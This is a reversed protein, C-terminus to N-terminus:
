LWADASYMPSASDGSSRASRCAALASTQPASSRPCRVSGHHPPPARAQARPSESCSEPDGVIRRDHQERPLSISFFCGSNNISANARARASCGHQSSTAPSPGCRAAASVSTARSPIGFTSNAPNRSSLASGAAYTPPPHRRAAMSAARSRPGPPSRPSSSRAASQRRRCPPIRPPGRADRHSRIRRAPVVADALQRRRDRPQTRVRLQARPEAGLAPANHLLVADLRAGVADDRRADRSFLRLVSHFCSASALQRQDFLLRVVALALM